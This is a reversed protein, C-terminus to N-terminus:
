RLDEPLQYDPYRKAFAALEREADEARAQAKLKRIDDIWAQPTRELVIPARAAVATAGSAAGADPAQVAPAAIQSPPLRAPAAEVVRASQIQNFEHQPADTRRVVPPERKPAFASGVPATQVPAPKPAPPEQIPGPSLAPESKPAPLAEALAKSEEAPRPAPQVRPAVRKSAAPLSITPVQEEYIRLALSSAAVVVATLAFPPGLRWVLSKSRRARAARRTAEVIADDLQQRSEPWAGERYVRSLEQDRPNNM